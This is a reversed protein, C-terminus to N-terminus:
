LPAIDWLEVSMAPFWSYMNEKPAFCVDQMILHKTENWEAMNQELWFTSHKWTWNTVTMPQISWPLEVAAGVPLETCVWCVLVNQVTTYTHAWNVIMNTMICRCASLCLPVLVALEKGDLLVCALKTDQSLVTGPVPLKGPKIYWVKNAQYCPFEHFAVPLTRICREAGLHSKSIGAKYSM